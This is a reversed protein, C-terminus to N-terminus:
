RRIRIAVATLFSRDLAPRIEANAAEQFEQQSQNAKRLCENAQRIRADNESEGPAFEDPALPGTLRKLCQGLHDLTEQVACASPSGPDFLLGVRLAKPTCETFAGLAEDVRAPAEPENRRLARIALDLKQFLVTNAALFHEAAEILRSRWAETTRQRIDLRTARLAFWSGLVGALAGIAAGGLAIAVTAWAPLM